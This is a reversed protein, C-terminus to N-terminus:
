LQSFIATENFPFNLRDLRGLEIMKTDVAKAAEIETSFRGLSYHKDELYYRAIWPSKSQACKQRFSVGYYLSTPKARVFTKINDQVRKIDEKSADPINLKAFEGHHEKAYIDYAIAADRKDLFNGIYTTKGKLRIAAMYYGKKKKPQCVGKYGSKNNSMTGKNFSNERRTCKRLNGRTVDFRNGNKHDIDFGKINGYVKEAIVRHVMGKSCTPMVSSVNVSLDKLWPYDEEGVLLLLHSKKVDIFLHRSTFQYDSHWRKYLRAEHERRVDFLYYLNGFFHPNGRNDFKLIDVTTLYLNRYEVSNLLDYYREDGFVRRIKDSIFRYIDDHDKSPSLDFKIRAEALDSFSFDMSESDALIAPIPNMSRREQYRLAEESLKIM